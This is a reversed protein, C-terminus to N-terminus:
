GHLAALGEKVIGSLDNVQKVDADMKARVAAAKVETRLTEQELATLNASLESAKDHAAKSIAERVKKAVQRKLVVLRARAEAAALELDQAEEARQAELSLQDALRSVTAVRQSGAAGSVTAGADRVTAVSASSTLQAAAAPAQLEPTRSRLHPTAELPAEAFSAAGGPVPLGLVNALESVNLKGDHDSDYTAFEKVTAAYDLGRASAYGSVESLQVHGDGDIDLEKLATTADDPAQRLSALLLRSLITSARADAGALGALCAVNLLRM